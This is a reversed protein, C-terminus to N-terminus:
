HHARAPVPVRVPHEPVPRPSLSRRRGAPQRLKPGRARLAELDTLLSCEFATRHTARTRHGRDLNLAHGWPSASDLNVAHGWPSAGYYFDSEAKRTNRTKRPCDDTTRFVTETKTVEAGRQPWDQLGNEGRIVRIARINGQEGSM